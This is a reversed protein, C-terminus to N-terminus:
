QNAGQLQTSSFTKIVQNEGPTAGQKSVVLPHNELRLSTIQQQHLDQYLAIAEQIKEQDDALLPKILHEDFLWFHFGLDEPSIIVERGDALTGYVFYQIINHGAYRPEGYMPYELFPYLAPDCAQGSLFPLIQRKCLLKSIATFQLALFLFILGSIILSSKEGLNAQSQNEM